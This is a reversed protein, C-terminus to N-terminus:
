ASPCFLQFGGGRKALSSRGEITIIREIPSGLAHMSRYNISPACDIAQVQDDRSVPNGADRILPHKKM